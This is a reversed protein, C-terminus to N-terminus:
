RIRRLLAIVVRGVILWFIAAMGYNVLVGVRDDDPTFLDRFFVVLGEALDATFTVLPNAQNADFIVFVIHLALAVAFLSSLVSVITTAWRVTQARTARARARDAERQKEREADRDEATREERTTTTQQDDERTVDGSGGTPDNGTDAM